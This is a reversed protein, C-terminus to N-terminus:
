DADGGGRANVWGAQQAYEQPHQDNADVAMALDTLYNAADMADRALRGNKTLPMAMASALHASLADAFVQPYKTPDDVFRTFECVAGSVDSYIDNETIHRRTDPSRNKQLMAMATKPENVWCINMADAPRQYKFAWENNRDNTQQALVQRGLAFTWWHRELLARLCRDYHLDCQIAEPSGEDLSTIIDVGLYTTLAVNCIQVQSSM